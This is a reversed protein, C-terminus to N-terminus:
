SLKKEVITSIEECEQVMQQALKSLRLYRRLGRKSINWASSFHSIASDNEGNQHASIARNFEVLLKISNASSYLEAARFLKDGSERNDSLALCLGLNALEFSTGGRRAIETDLLQKAEEVMGQHLMMFASNNVSRIGGMIKRLRIIMLPIFIGLLMAAFAAKEAQSESDFDVPPKGGVFQNEPPYRPIPSTWQNM